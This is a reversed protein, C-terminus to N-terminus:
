SGELVSDIRVSSIGAASDSGFCPGIIFVRGTSFITM